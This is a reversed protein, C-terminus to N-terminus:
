RIYGGNGQESKQDWLHPHHTPPKGLYYIPLTPIYILYIWWERTRIKSGLHTPSPPPPPTLFVM